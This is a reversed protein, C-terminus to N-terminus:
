PRSIYQNRRRFCFLDVKELTGSSFVRPFGNVIRAALVILFNAEFYEEM